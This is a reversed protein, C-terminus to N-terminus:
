SAAARLLEDRATKAFSAAGDPDVEEDGGSQHRVAAAILAPDGIGEALAWTAGDPKSCLKSQRALRLARCANLVAYGSRGRDIAWSLDDALSRLLRARDVPPFLDKAPPGLLAIGHERAMAFHAILDADGQSDAGDVVTDEATAIHLEFPPYSSSTSTSGVTVISMELGVGPCPLAAQRLASIVALKATTPLSEQTVALVDVDSRTPIFSGMAASGHVYLGRLNAGITESARRALERLYDDLKRDV